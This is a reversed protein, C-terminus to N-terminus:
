SNLNRKQYSRWGAARVALYMAWRLHFAIGQEKMLELFVGDAEARTIDEFDGNRYLFDHVIASELYRGFPHGVVSYAGQPISAGDSSFNKPVVITGIESHVVFPQDVIITREGGIIPGLHSMLPQPFKATM